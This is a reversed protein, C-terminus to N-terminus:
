ERRQVFTKKTIDHIIALLSSTESEEVEVRAPGEQAKRQFRAIFARNKQVHFCAEVSLTGFGRDRCVAVFVVDLLSTIWLNQPCGDVRSNLFVVTVLVELDPVFTTMKKGNRQRMRM